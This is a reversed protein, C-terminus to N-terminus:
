LESEKRQFLGLLFQIFDLPFRINIIFKIAITLSLARLSLNINDLARPFNNDISLRQSIVASINVVSSLGEFREDKSLCGSLVIKLKRNYPATNM